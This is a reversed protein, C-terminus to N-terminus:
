SLLQWNEWVFPIRFTLQHTKELKSRIIRYRDKYNPITRHFQVQINTCKQILQNQIMHELLDYEDGEINIKLLDIHDVGNTTMARDMTTYLITQKKNSRIHVSSSDKNIYITEDSVRNSIAIPWKNVGKIQFYFEMVPEYCIVMCGYKKSISKAFEGKYAGIDFVVSDKNLDYELRLENLFKWKNHRLFKM